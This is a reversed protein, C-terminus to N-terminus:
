LEIVCDKEIDHIVKQAKSLISDFAEEAAQITLKQAMFGIVCEEVGEIKGIAREMKAACNACGLDRLKFTKRM